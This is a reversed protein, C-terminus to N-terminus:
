IRARRRAVVKEILQRTRERNGVACENGFIEAVKRGEVWVTVDAVQPNQLDRIMHVEAISGLLVDEYFEIPGRIGAYVLFDGKAQEEPTQFDRRYLFDAVATQAGAEILMPKIYETQMNEGYRLRHQVLVFEIGDITTVTSGDVTIESNGTLANEGLNSPHIFMTDGAVVPQSFKIPGGIRRLRADQMLNRSIRVKQVRLAEALQDIGRVVSIGYESTFHGEVFLDRIKVAGRLPTESVIMPMDVQWVNPPFRDPNLVFYGIASNQDPFIVRDICRTRNNYMAMRAITEEEGWHPIEPGTM